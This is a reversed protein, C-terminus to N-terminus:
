EVVVAALELFLHHHQLATGPTVFAARLHYSGDPGVCDVVVRGCDRRTEVTVTRCFVAADSQALVSMGEL